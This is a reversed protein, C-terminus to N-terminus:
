KQGASGGSKLVVMGLPPITVTIAHSRGHLPTPSADVGGFNGQGTGGYDASDSNLIETWRGSRPVGLRYNPRPVPTFNFACLLWDDTSTGRRLYALVSQAADSADVWEFGAPDCDLEHLAPEDRYVRNLDGIWRAVGAHAPDDLLHWDLSSEHSWERWQALEGGMFLLKKGPQTWQYGYLLRLNARKQWDDGPMKGLLSGKGHVVEDHSLPLAFSESFAYVSRFTLRGQHYKRHIPDEAMFKLTDHMWGMDWKYGFGLGGLYTPRSVMPWATSEEAFTQVDPHHEYVAANLQRLLEIAELNERGGHVNPIWEGERRSYDRYLMSAVADVRLGDAHYRDLWFLASSVLFSRVEHRGYNFIFSNWDPHYGLRPDAHEFLHTGDFYGLAHEDSPFHSPVWDLIVGIGERHLVDIMGMLDQPAGYRATPAFYGTTQYGWSGYFPHEMVPLLEVHTFGHDRAHRALPEAIERYSLPRNGEDPVRRWSGLHVEYISVPADLAAREMRGAMWEEDGWAHDLDWLVSGTKPPVESRVAFPDAKDVRYGGHRSAVHFKYNAGKPVGPLFGEWIGSGGRAVLPHAERDWGNFDGIVSVREAEPAWVAFAYGERGDLALPHAGLKEYLRFHRGENFLYVDEDTLLSAAATLETVVGVDATAPPEDATTVAVSEAAANQEPHPLEDPRPTETREVPTEASVGGSPRGARSRQAPPEVSPGRRTHRARGPESSAEASVNRGPSAAAAEAAGAREATDQVASAVVEASRQGGPTSPTGAAAAREAEGARGGPSGKERARGEDDSTTTTPEDITTDRATMRSSGDRSTSEESIKQEGDKEESIEKEGSEAEGGDVTGRRVADLRELAEAVRPDAAAEELTKAARRRWNPRERWTGPVNQPETEGWLDELAVLVLRADTEGMSDLAAAHVAVPDDAERTSLRGAAALRARWTAREQQRGYREHAAEAEGLWGFAVRDDVDLAEWFGRFTPMDHTGVSAVVTPPAPRHLRETGEEREIEWPLVFMGHVGHREMARNVAAPVTGLNEGAIETRARHSELCLIAYLEEEPYHVYAGDRADAGAPVWYLRHLQMVHDIRLMGAHALSHRLAAIWYRHGQERSREPDVPHFGWDQGEGFFDDPPAGASARRAFLDRERWVDFSSPHVGLPLDLYLGTGLPALAGALRRMEEGCAFQCYLHYRRAAEDGDGERLEGGRQRAPWEQWPVGLREGAARFAAYATLEPRRHLFEDYAARRAEEAGSFFAEALPELVRRKAAAVRAWDVLRDSALEALEAAFAKGALLKRAKPARALEPLREPDLYTENWALRSAPAYPSFEFPVAQEGRGGSGLFAALLPLTAVADGGRAGVWEGLAELDGLDGAGWDRGAGRRLAYLPVFVGWDRRPPDDRAFAREPAAIVLTEARTGGGFDLHLRHYGHPLDPPLPLLKAVLGGEQSSIGAGRDRPRLDREGDGGRLGGDEAAGDPLRRLSRRSTRSGGDELELRAAVRGGLEDRPVLIEVAAPRGEWAVAVPEARRAARRALLAALAEGADEPREVQEGLAALVGLLAETSAAQREGRVDRYRLLVGRERALRELVDVAPGTAGGRSRPSRHEPRRSESATGMAEEPSGDARRDARAAESSTRGAGGEAGTPGNEASGEGPASSETADPRRAVETTGGATAGAESRGGDGGRRRGRRGFFGTM